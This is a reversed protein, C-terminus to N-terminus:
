FDRRIQLYARAGDGKLGPAHGDVPLGRQRAAALKALVQPDGNLVGPFNMMESLYM